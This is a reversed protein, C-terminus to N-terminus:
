TELKSSIDIVKGSIIMHSSKSLEKLSAKGGWAFFISNCTFFLIFLLMIIKWARMTEETLHNTQNLNNQRSPVM